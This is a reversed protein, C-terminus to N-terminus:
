FFDEEDFNELVLKRLSKICRSKQAKAVNASKSKIERAISEMSYSDYYFLKLLTYCPEGLQKLISDIFDTVSADAKIPDPASLPIIKEFDELDRDFRQEYKAKNLLLNRGIAFLYTKASYDFSQIRGQKINKYFSIVADQFIDLADEKEVSFKYMAWRIFDSKYQNYLKAVEREDGKLINQIIAQDTKELTKM